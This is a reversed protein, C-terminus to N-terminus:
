EYFHHHHQRNDPFGTKQCLISFIPHMEVAYWKSSQKERCWDYKALGTLKFDMFYEIIVFCLFFFTSNFLDRMCLWTLISVQKNLLMQWTTLHMMSPLRVTAFEATPLLNYTYNHIPSKKVPKIVSITLFAFFSKSNRTIFHHLNHQRYGSHYIAYKRPSQSHQNTRLKGCEM